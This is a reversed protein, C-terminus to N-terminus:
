KEATGKKEDASEEAPTEEVDTNHPTTVSLVVEDLGVNLDIDKDAALSLDGVKVVDGVRLKELDIEVKEVLAAPLAKYPIEHLVQQVIGGVLKDHNILVVEAVSHVKEDSVLAQFDVEEYQGKMSNYDLEKILVDYQQGEVDLIIQSGKNKGKLLREAEARVMKVPISGEIKRGFVNGTVYGERRLKKPTTLMDRKEAKLTDM